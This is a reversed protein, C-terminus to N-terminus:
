RTETTWKGVAAVSKQILEELVSRDVDDLRKVHLCAKGTSHKGLNSLLTDYESFGDQIYLTLTKSRPAFGVKFWEMPSGSKRKYSYTGFGVISLGWMRPQEGTINVMLKTLEKSDRRQSEDEISDLFKTVNAASRQTKLEAM